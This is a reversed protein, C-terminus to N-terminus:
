ASRGLLGYQAFSWEHNSWRFIEWETPLGSARMTRIVQGIVLESVPYEATEDVVVPPVNIRTEIATVRQDVSVAATELDAVRDPVLTVRSRGPPSHRSMLRVCFTKCKSLRHM